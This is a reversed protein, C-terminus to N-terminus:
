SRRGTRSPPLRRLAAYRVIQAGVHDARVARDLVEPEERDRSDRARAAPRRGLRMDGVDQPHLAAAVERESVLAGAAELAAQRRAHPRDVLARLPQARSAYEVAAARSSRPLDTFVMPTSPAQARLRRHVELIAHM